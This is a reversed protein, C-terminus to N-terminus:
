AFLGRLEDLNAGSFDSVVKDAGAKELLPGRGNAAIALCKMGARKAAEVGNVADECVLIDAPRVNMRDAALIFIAPDPKGRTVDDGTVVAQFREKFGLQRLLYEVRGSSASSAVAMTLGTAVARALFAPLGDVFKIESVSNKFLAEKQAGYDKVQEETLNGLFHRLIDERKQGELVFELEEDSVHRGVSTFFKKWARKHAPHSDVLVGDLDFVIGRLM